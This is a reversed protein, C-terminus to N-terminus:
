HRLSINQAIHQLGKSLASANCLSQECAFRQLLSQLHVAPAEHLDTFQVQVMLAAM